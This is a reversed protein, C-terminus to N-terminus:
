LECSIDQHLSIIMNVDALIVVEARVDALIVVEAMRVNERLVRFREFANRLFNSSAMRAHELFEIRFQIRFITMENREVKPSKFHWHTASLKNTRLAEQGVTTPPSPPPISGDDQCM